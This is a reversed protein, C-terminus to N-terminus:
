VAILHAMFAQNMLYSVYCFIYVYCFVHFKTKIKSKGFYIFLYFLYILNVYMEKFGFISLVICHM